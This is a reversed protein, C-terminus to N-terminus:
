KGAPPPTAPPPLRHDILEPADKILGLGYRARMLMPMRVESLIGPGPPLARVYAVLAAFDEDNLRNYEESPMFLLARGAPDVGHRIARVWDAERYNAVLSTKSSTIDPARVYLGDPAETVVRGAGDEGHCTDCFLSEYLEKGKMLIPATAPAYAVPVVRVDIRRDFKRDGLWLAGAFAAAAGAGVVAIITVVIKMVSAADYGARLVPGWRM